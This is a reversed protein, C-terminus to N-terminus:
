LHCNRNANCKYHKNSVTAVKLSSMWLAIWTKCNQFVLICLRLSVESCMRIQWNLDFIFMVCWFSQSVNLIMLASTISVKSISWRNDILLQKQFDFQPMYRDCHRMSLNIHRNHRQLNRWKRGLTQFIQVTFLAFIFSYTGFPHRGFFFLFVPQLGTPTCMSGKRWFKAFLYTEFNSYLFKNFIKSLMKSTISIEENFSRYFQDCFKWVVLQLKRYTGIFKWKQRM